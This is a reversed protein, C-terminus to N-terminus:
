PTEAKSGRDGRIWQAVSALGRELWAPAPGANPQRLLVVLAPLYVSAVVYPGGVTVPHGGSLLKVMWAIGGAASILALALSQRSTQPVLFLLLQDAFTATQPLLSMALLLRGEPRRWRLAALILPAGYWTMVPILHAPAGSMVSLWRSPWSPMAVLSVVVLVAAGLIMPRSPRTAMAALGLNPKVAVMFGLAPVLLSAAIWPSWHGLHAAMMFPFSCFLALRHPGTRAVGWALLGSGIGFFTALAGYYPLPAFPVTTVLATLPYFLQEPIFFPAVDPPTSYPDGGALLVRAGFWWALFDGYGVRKMALFFSAAAAGLGVVLAVLFAARPALPALEPDHTV